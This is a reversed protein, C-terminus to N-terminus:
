VAPMAGVAVPPQAPGSVHSEFSMGGPSRHSACALCNLSTIRAVCSVCVVSCSSPLRVLKSGCWQIEDAGKLTDDALPMCPCRDGILLFGLSWPQALQQLSSPMHANPRGFTDFFRRWSDCASLSHTRLRLLDFQPLPPRHALCGSLGVTVCAADHLVAATTM